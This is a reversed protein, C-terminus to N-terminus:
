NSMKGSISVDFRGVVYAAIFLALIGSFFVLPKRLAAAPPYNYTIILERDKLDDFLNVATLTLTTRGTTDM